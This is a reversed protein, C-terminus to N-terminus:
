TWRASNTAGTPSACNASWSRARRVSARAIKAQGL